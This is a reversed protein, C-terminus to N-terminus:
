EGWGARGDHEASDRRLRESHRGSDPRDLWIARTQDVERGITAIRTPQRLSAAVGPRWRASRGLGAKRSAFLRKAIPESARPQGRGASSGGRVAGVRSYDSRSQSAREPGAGAPAVAVANTQRLPPDAGGARPRSSQPTSGRPGFPGLRPSWGAWKPPRGHMNTPGEATQGARQATSVSRAARTHM